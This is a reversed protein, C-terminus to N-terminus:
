RMQAYPGSRKAKAPPSTRAHGEPPVLAEIGDSELEGIQAKSWYGADALVTQPAAAGVAALNTRADDRDDAGASRRRRIIPDARLLRDGARQDRGGPRQGQIFGRHTKVPRSDPDTINIPGEPEAPPPKATPKRGAIRKGETALEAERRRRWAAHEAEAELKAAHEEELRRKAEALREARENRENPKPKNPGQLQEKIWERRKAPDALHAPLQDGRTEGHREDEAADIRAADALIEEAIQRHTRNRQGSANAAIKTSDLDLLEGSVIGARNCLGLLQGFLEALPEQHRSRFRAFTAHDPQADASIVRYAVDDFCRREIERASRTGTAYAYLLLAVM